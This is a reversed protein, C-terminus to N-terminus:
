NSPKFVVQVPKKIDIPEEIIEEIEEQNYKDMFYDDYFKDLKGLNLSEAFEEISGDFYVREITGRHREYDSM